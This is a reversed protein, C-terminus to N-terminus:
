RRATDPTTEPSRWCRPKITHIVLFGCDMPFTCFKLLWAFLLCLALLVVILADIESGLLHSLESCGWVGGAM